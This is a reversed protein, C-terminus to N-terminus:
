TTYHYFLLFGRLVQLTAPIKDILLYKCAPKTRMFFRLMAPQM